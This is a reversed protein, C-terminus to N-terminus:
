RILPLLQPPRSYDTVLPLFHRIIAPGPESNHLRQRLLIADFIGFQQM